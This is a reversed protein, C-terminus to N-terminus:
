NCQGNHYRAFGEDVPGSNSLASILPNDNVAGVAITFSESASTDVGGNATGGDDTLTVSVTASGNAEPTLTYSLTGSPSIKPQGTPTFLSNNDNSVSFNLTQGSEEAPGAPSAM